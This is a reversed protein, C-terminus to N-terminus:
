ACKVRNCLTASTAYVVPKQRFIPKNVTEKFYATKQHSSPLQPSLYSNKKDFGFELRLTFCPQFLSKFNPYKGIVNLCFGVIITSDDFQHSIYGVNSSVILLLHVNKPNFLPPSRRSLSHSLGKSCFNYRRGSFIM